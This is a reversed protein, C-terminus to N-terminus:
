RGLILVVIMTILLYGLYLHINGEQLKRIQSALWLLGRILPRYFFDEFVAKIGGEYSLSRLSYRTGAFDREVKSHSGLVKAFLIRIPNTLGVASYQMSPTLPSGCNWTATVRRAGRKGLILVVASLLSFIILYVATMHLPKGVASGIGVAEGNRLVLLPLNILALTASPWLVSLVAFGSIIFPAIYQPPQVERAKEAVESRAQGLFAIGFWKVFTAISLGGVLAIVGIVLPLFVKGWGTTLNATNMWLSQFLMLEGWFGGLPPLATIGIIGLLAGLGTKPMRKLLGGLRELNRTHTAQIINGAGMFLLSKFLMHQLAHWFFAILALDMAWSNNWSRALFASGLAVGLIGVNEITSFALLKKLDSQVSAFLIGVVASLAGIVLFLWGWWVPGPGLTLWVLRLFLYLAVKVMVGSMLSSVPSPAASHAYPLWIHFPVFGAKTGLGIFFALFVLNLQITTLTPAVDEWVEFSFSGTKTYLFLTAATLFVTGVHTMILYIYASKRNQPEEHEYLVLFFSFLSMMEWTFLFTFGDNALLVGFMSGLFLFWNAYFSWLSKKEAEYETLYGLAYLSSLGQGLLLIFLFFITLGDVKWTLSLGAGEETFFRLGTKIWDGGQSTVLTGWVLGAGALAISISMFLQRFFQNEKFIM